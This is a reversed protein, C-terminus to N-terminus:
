LTTTPPAPPAPPRTLDPPLRTADDIHANALEESTLGIADHLDARELHTDFLFTGELHTKWLRAGELHADFLFARELHATALFARELHAQQLSAWEFHCDAGFGVRRLDMSRLDLPFTERAGFRLPRGGTTAHFGHNANSRLRQPRAAANISNRSAM